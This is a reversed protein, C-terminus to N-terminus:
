ERYQTLGSRSLVGRMLSPPPGPPGDTLYVLPPPPSELLHRKLIWPKEKYARLTKAGWREKDARQHCNACLCILNKADHLKSKHWPVIHARELPCADGCVACRHGAEALVQRQVDAPIAPRDQPM